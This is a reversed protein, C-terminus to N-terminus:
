ESNGIVFILSAQFFPSFDTVFFLPKNAEAGPVLNILSKQGRNLFQQLLSSHKDM